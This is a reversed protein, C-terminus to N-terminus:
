RAPGLVFAFAKPFSKAWDAPAHKADPIVATELTSGEVYGIGGLADFLDQSTQLMPPLSEDTNTEAGGVNAYIKSSQKPGIAKAERVKRVIYSDDYFASTSMALAGGFTDGHFIAAYCTMLGGLSTGSIYTHDRDPLTRLEKDVLPKIETILMTMFKPGDGTYKAKLGYEDKKAVTPTLERNRDRMMDNLGMLGDTFVGWPFTLPPFDIGVVIVEAIAGSENGEDLTEDVMMEGILDSESSNGFVLQGDMMYVVPYRATTNEDYGAPLYVEISRPQDNPMPLITSQITHWSTNVKGKDEFFHPYIDLTRGPEVTWEPGRSPTGDLHPRVNKPETLVGLTAEWTDDGVNTLAITGSSGELTLDRQGVPYHVRVVAPTTPDTSDTGGPKSSAGNADDAGESSTEEHSESAKDTADAACGTLLLVFTAVGAWPDLSIRRM